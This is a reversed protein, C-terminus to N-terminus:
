EKPIDIQMMKIYIQQKSSATYVGNQNWRISLQVVVQNGFSVNKKIYKLIYTCVMKIKDSSSKLFSVKKTYKLSIRIIYTTWQTCVM